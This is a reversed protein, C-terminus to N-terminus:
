DFDDVRRRRRRPPPTKNANMNLLVITGAVGVLVVAAVLALGGLVLKPSFVPTFSKNGSNSGGSSPASPTTDPSLVPESEDRPAPPTAGPGQPRMGSDPNNAPPPNVMGPNNGGPPKTPPNMPMDGGNGPGNSPGFGNVFRVGCHPCNAPPLDGRGAEQGCKGCKWVSEFLPGRPGFGGGPNNQGFPNGPMPPHPIGGPPMIPPRPPFGPQAQAPSLEGFLFWSAAIGLLGAGLLCTTRLMSSTGKWFPMFALEVM